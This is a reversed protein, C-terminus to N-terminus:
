HASARARVHHCQIGVIHGNFHERIFTSDIVSDAVRHAIFDGLRHTAERLVAGGQVQVAADGWPDAISSRVLPRGRSAFVGRIWLTDANAVDGVHGIRAGPRYGEEIGVLLARAQQEVVVMGPADGAQVNICTFSGAVQDGISHLLGQDSGCARKCTKPTPVGSMM